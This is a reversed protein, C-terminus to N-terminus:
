ENSEEEPPPPRRPLDIKFCTNENEKDLQITGGHLEIIGKCVSLGLGTGKGIEKTTFFPNFIKKQVNQPIGKGSDTITIYIKQDDKDIDIKIWKTKHEKIADRANNVLNVIVQNIQTPNCELGWNEKSNDSNKVEISISHHKLKYECIQIADDIIELFNSFVFRGNKGDRSYSKLAKIIKSIHAVSSEIDDVIETILEKPIVPKNIATKIQGLSLLIAGLPTNIEHAMGGAMEGLLAM